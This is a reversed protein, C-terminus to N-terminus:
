VIALEQQELRGMQDQLDQYPELHLTCPALHLQLSVLQMTCNCHFLTYNCSHLPVLLINIKIYYNSIVPQM